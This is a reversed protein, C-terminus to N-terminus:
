HLLASLPQADGLQHRFVAERAAHELLQAALRRAPLAQTSPATLWQGRLEPRTALALALPATNVSTGAPLDLCLAVRARMTPSELPSAAGLAMRSAVAVFTAATGEYLRSFVRRRLERKTQ